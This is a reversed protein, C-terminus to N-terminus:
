GAKKGAALPRKRPACLDCVAVKVAKRRETDADTDTEEPLSGKGGSIARLMRSVKERDAVEMLGRAGEYGCNLASLAQGTRLGREITGKSCSKLGASGGQGVVHLFGASTWDGAGAADAFRPAAFASFASWQGKWRIRLGEEGLTEIVVWPHLTSGFDQVHGLREKSYKLVHALEIAARFNKEDSYSSPEFIVLAGAQRAWRALGVIGPSVRDFFFVSPKIGFTKAREADARLIPRFRPLWQGCEPCTLAFRHSRRGSADVVMRQVVVPTPTGGDQRVLGTDVGAQELEKVVWRGAVDKGLRAVPASRWGLWALIALVNGCTGGAARHDGADGEIVDLAIFGSGLAAAGKRAQELRLDIRMLAGM